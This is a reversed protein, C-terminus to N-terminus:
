TRRDVPVLWVISIGSKEEVVADAAESPESAEIEPM